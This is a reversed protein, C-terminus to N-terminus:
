FQLVEDIFERIIVRGSFSNRFYDIIAKRIESILQRNNGVVMLSYKGEVANYGGGEDDFVVFVLEEM